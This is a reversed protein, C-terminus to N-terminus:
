FGIEENVANLLEDDYNSYFNYQYVLNPISPKYVKPTVNLLDALMGENEKISSLLIKGAVKGDESKKVL